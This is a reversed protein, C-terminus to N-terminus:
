LLLATPPLEPRYFADREAQSIFPRLTAVSRMYRGLEDADTLVAVVADPGEDIIRIWREFYPYSGSRARADEFWQRFQALRERSLRKAALRGMLYLRNAIEDDGYPATRPAEISAPELGLTSGVAQAARQFISIHADMGREILSVHAQTLEAAEAVAQQSLGRATRAARLAAGLASHVRKDAM